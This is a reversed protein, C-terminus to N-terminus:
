KSHKRKEDRALNAFYQRKFDQFLYSKTTESVQYLKNLYLANFAAWVEDHQSEYLNELADDSAEWDEWAEQDFFDQETIM